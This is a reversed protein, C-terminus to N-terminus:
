EAKKNKDRKLISLWVFFGITGSLVFLCGIGWIFNHFLSIVATGVSSALFASAGMLSSASGIDRDHINLALYTAPPRQVHQSIVPPLLLLVLILPSSNAFCLNAAGGAAPVLFAVLMIANRSFRRSLLLYIFPGLAMGGAVLALFFSYVQSGLGFYDQYIYTSSTVYGMLAIPPLFFLIILYITFRKSKLPLTLRGFSRLVSVINREQITEKFIFSGVLVIAGLVAEAYFIGRWSTLNLVFAGVVPAIAPGLTGMSQIVALASEQKKGAFVDKVVASSIAISCSGGFAQLIRYLIFLNLTPAIACLFSGICYAVVGILLVPKRGYKDSLPGWFLTAICITAFFVILSLNTQAATAGYYKAIGPLAPLYM